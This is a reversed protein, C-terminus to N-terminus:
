LLLIGLIGTLSVGMLVLGLYPTGEKIFSETPEYPNYFLQLRKKFNPQDWAAAQKAEMEYIVDGVRYAVVPLYSVPMPERLWQDGVQEQQQNGGIREIFAVIEGETSVFTSYRAISSLQVLGGALLLLAFFFLLLFDM